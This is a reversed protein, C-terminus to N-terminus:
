PLSLCFYETTLSKIQVHLPVNNFNIYIRFKSFVIFIFCLRAPLGMPSVFHFELGVLDVLLYFVSFPFFLQYCIPFLLNITKFVGTNIINFKLPRINQNFYYGIFQFLFFSIEDQWACAWKMFLSKALKFLNLYWFM